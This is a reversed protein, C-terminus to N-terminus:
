IVNESLLIEIDNAINNLYSTKRKGKKEVKLSRM